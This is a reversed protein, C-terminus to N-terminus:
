IHSLVTHGIIDKTSASCASGVVWAEAPSGALAAIVIVTAPVGNYRALDVLLVMRGPAILDICAALRSALSSTPAASGASSSTQANSARPTSVTPQDTPIGRAQAAHVADSVEATLKAPAFNAISQVARITHLAGPHGYTVNPGLSMQQAPVRGAASGESPSTAAGGSAHTAIEYGGAAAIVLAGAAAVLRTAPVSFGPLHWGRRAARRRHRAPLEGRGGETAPMATLRQTAEVRLAAEIQISVTTPMPPSQAGALVAPVQDLQHSIQDCQVCVTLHASIRAAKRPSLAGAALSALQDTTAHRGRRIM